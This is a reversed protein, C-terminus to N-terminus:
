GTEIQTSVAAMIDKAQSEQEEDSTNEAGQKEKTEFIDLTEEASDTKTNTLWVPGEKWLRSTMLDEAGLGRTLLDAPNERGPCHKWDAPNTLM